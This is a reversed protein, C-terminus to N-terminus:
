DGCREQQDGRPGVGRRRGISDLDDRRKRGAPGGVHQRPQQRLFEVRAEGGVDDPLIAAAAAADDAGLRHRSRRRVALRQQDAAEPECTM